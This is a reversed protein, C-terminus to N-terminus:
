RARLDDLLDDLVDLDAILTGVAGMRGVAASQPVIIDGVRPGSAFRGLLNRWFIRGLLNKQYYLIRGDGAANM